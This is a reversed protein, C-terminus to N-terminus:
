SPTVMFAIIGARQLIVTYAKIPKKENSREAGGFSDQLVSRVWLHRPLWSHTNKEESSDLFAMVTLWGGYSSFSLM